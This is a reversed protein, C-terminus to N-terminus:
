TGTNPACGPLIFCNIDTNYTDSICVVYSSAPESIPPRHIRQMLRGLGARDACSMDRAPVAFLMMTRDIDLSGVGGIRVMLSGTLEYTTHIESVYLVSIFQNIKGTHARFVPM